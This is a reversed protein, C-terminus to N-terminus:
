ELVQLRQLITTAVAPTLYPKMGRDEEPQPGGVVAYAAENDEDYFISYKDFSEDEIAMVWRYFKDRDFNRSFGSISSGANIDQAFEIVFQDASFLRMFSETVKRGETNNVRLLQPDIKAGTIGDLSMACQEDLWLLFGNRVHPAEEAQLMDGLTKNTKVVLVTEDLIRDKYSNVAKWVQTEFTFEVCALRSFLSTITMYQVTQCATYGLALEKILSKRRAETENKIVSFIYELCFKVQKNMTQKDQFMPLGHELTLLIFHSVPHTNRRDRLAGISAESSLLSRCEELSVKRFRKIEDLGSSFLKFTRSHFTSKHDRQQRLLALM